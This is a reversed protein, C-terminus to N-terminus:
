YRAIAKAVSVSQEIAKGTEIEEQNEDYAGCLASPDGINSQAQEDKQTLLELIRQDGRIKPHDSETCLYGIRPQNKQGYRDVRGNRQQFVMLSWPIDFHILKHSLFHLNIGESAIDTAILVRVPSQEQGFQLIIDQLKADDTEQGSLTAIQAPRLDLDRELHTRLFNLTEIRETFIVLRDDTREPHWTLQGDPRLLTLLEQYRSFRKPTIADM